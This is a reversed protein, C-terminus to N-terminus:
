RGQGIRSVVLAAEVRNSVAMKSMARHVHKKVTTEAIHLNSGIQKNTMGEAVLGLVEKERPTLWSLGEPEAVSQSDLNTDSLRKHGLVCVAGGRKVLAIVSALDEQLFELDAFGAVEARVADEMNINSDHCRLVIVSVEKDIQQVLHRFEERTLKRLNLLIVDPYVEGVAAVTSVADQAVGAVDLGPAEQVMMMLGSRTVVQDDAILLQIKPVRM